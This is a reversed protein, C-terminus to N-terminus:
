PREGKEPAPPERSRANLEERIEHVESRMKLMEEEFASFGPRSLARAAITIGVFVAGVLALITVLVLALIFSLPDGLIAGYGLNFLHAVQAVEILVLAAIIVVWLWVARSLRM